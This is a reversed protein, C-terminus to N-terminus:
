QTPVEKLGHTRVLKRMLNALTAREAASLCGFFEADNRDAMAALDPVLTKGKDTLAVSLFRRDEGAGAAKSLLRKAALRDVLKSIAGRTMGLREALESPPMAERGFLERLVVWEAVTVGRSEVKRAFAQSVHNSVFRLWYGLHSTLENVRDAKM